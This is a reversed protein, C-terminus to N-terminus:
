YVLGWEAGNDVYAQIMVWEVGTDLYMVYQAWEEGDDIHCGVRQSTASITIEDADIEVDGDPHSRTKIIFGTNPAITMAYENGWTKSVTATTNTYAVGDFTITVGEDASIFVCPEWVAYLTIDAAQAPLTDGPSYVATHASSSTAWGLFTHNSRSPTGSTLTSGYQKIGDTAAPADSGGNADYTVTYFPTVYTVDKTESGEPGYGTNSIPHLVWKWYVSLYDTIDTVRSAARVLTGSYLTTDGSKVVLSNEVMGQYTGSNAWAQMFQDLKISHDDYVIIRTRVSAQATSSSTGTSKSSCNTETTVWNGSSNLWLKATAM